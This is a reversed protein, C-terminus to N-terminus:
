LAVQAGVVMAVVVIVMVCAIAVLAILCCRFGSKQHKTAKELQTMGQTTNSHAAEIDSEIVNVSEGQSEVIEALDSFVQPPPAETHSAPVPSPPRHPFKRVWV